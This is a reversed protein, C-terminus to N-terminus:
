FPVAYLMGGDRVLRNPGRELQLPGQAGLNREYLEGYNGVAAIVRAAWGPTLGLATALNDTRQLFTRIEAREDGRRPQRAMEGTLGIEEATILASLVARVTVLWSPDTQRVVLSILERSHFGPLIALSFGRQSAWVRAAALLTADETIATCRGTAFAEWAKDGNDFIIPQFSLGRQVALDELNQKHTTGKLVCISANNLDALDHIGQDPHVMFSQGTIFLPDAFLVGLQAERGITQSTNRALLDVEKAILSSFRGLIPLPQLAVKATDELIAAALARCFDVEIGTWRSQSDQIALGHSSASVGCRLMQRAKIEKITDGAAWCPLATLCCFLVALLARM